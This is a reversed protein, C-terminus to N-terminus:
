QMMRHGAATRIDELKRLIDAFLTTKISISVVDQNTAVIYHSLFKAIHPKLFGIDILSKVANVASKFNEVKYASLGTNKSHEFQLKPSYSELIKIL